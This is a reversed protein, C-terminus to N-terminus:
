ASRLQTTKLMQKDSSAEELQAIKFRPTELEQASPRTNMKVISSESSIEKLKRIV